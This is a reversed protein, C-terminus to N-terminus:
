PVVVQQDFSSGVVIRTEMWNREPSKKKKKALVIYGIAPKQDSGLSLVCAQVTGSFVAQVPVCCQHKTVRGKPRCASKGGRREGGKKKIM